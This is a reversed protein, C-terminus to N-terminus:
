TCVCSLRRAETGTGRAVWTAGRAKSVRTPPSPAETPLALALPAMVEEHFEGLFTFKQWTPWWCLIDQDDSPQLQMDEVRMEFSSLQIHALSYKGSRLGEETTCLNWQTEALRARSDELSLSSWARLAVHARAPSFRAEEWHADPNVTACTRGGGALPVMCRFSIRLDVATVNPNVGCDASCGYSEPTPGFGPYEFPPDCLRDGCVPDSWVSEALATLWSYFEGVAPEEEFDFGMELAFKLSHSTDYAIVAERQLLFITFYTYLFTLYAMLNLYNAKRRIIEAFRDQVVSLINVRARGEEVAQIIKLEAEDLVDDENADYDLLNGIQSTGQLQAARELEEADLIEDDNADMALIGSMTPRLPDVAYSAM